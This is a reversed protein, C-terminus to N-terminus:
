APSGSESGTGHLEGLARAAAETEAARRSSGEGSGVVRGDIAVEVRFRREHDPGVTEVIAYSPRSGFMRQTLEQLRSKPSKLTRGPDAAAELDPEALELLWDRAQEWGLDIFLAGVLAEFASALLAPRERGGRAAEGEGLLLDDGLSIRDALRALGPTSVILARRASLRGEDDGPHREFLAGSIILDVVADGLFELRENHGIGSAPHEHHWSSHVLAQEILGLDRVPLRLRTAIAEGPRM